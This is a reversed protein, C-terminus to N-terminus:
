RRTGCAQSIACGTACSQCNGQGAAAETGCGPGCGLELTEAFSSIQATADYTAVLEAIWGEVEAPVEGLFHFYLKGGEFLHEVDLLTATSSRARLLAECAAFAADKKDELRAALLHDAVTMGRLISGASLGSQGAQPDGAPALVEGAELGRRTRVIV